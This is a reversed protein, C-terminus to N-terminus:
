LSCSRAVPPFLLGSDQPECRLPQGYNASDIGFYFAVHPSRTQLSKFSEKEHKGNYGRELNDPDAGKKITVWANSLFKLQLHLM